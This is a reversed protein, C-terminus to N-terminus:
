LTLKCNELGPFGHARIWAAAPQVRPSSAQLTAAGSTSDKKYISVLVSMNTCVEPDTLWGRDNFEQDM